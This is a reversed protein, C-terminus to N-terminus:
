KSYELINPVFTSKLERKYVPLIKLRTVRFNSKKEMLLTPTVSITTQSTFSKKRKRETKVQETKSLEKMGTKVDHSARM